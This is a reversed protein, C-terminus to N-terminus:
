DKEVRQKIGTLSGRQMVCHAWEMWVKDVVLMWFNRPAQYRMRTILRSRNGSISDIYFGMMWSSDESSKYVLARNLLVTHVSWGKGRAGACVPEHDGPKINQWGPVLSDANRLRCGFLNELWTYSYFGGKNLGMQALWPWVRSPAREITVALVNQYGPQLVISDGPYIAQIEQRTAGWHMMGDRIFFVYLITLLLFALGVLRFIIKARKM